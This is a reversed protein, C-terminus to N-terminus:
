SRKAASTGASILTEEIHDKLRARFLDESFKEAQKRCAVPNIEEKRKEFEEVAEMISEPTQEDFFVGTESTISDLAGGKGYAIVPTGCALAEVPMIGFDEQAAFVFARAKQMKEKLVSFPQYGLYEINPAKSAIEEVKPAETGAGIIVLKRDPMKAFAEAIVPLKKYPVMRSAALYFDEKEACAEFDQTAVPPHIVKSERDYFRSIRSAIFNSNAVYSTVWPATKLDWQRLRGLFYRILSGKLGRGQGTTSLYEEQMDWAYRVPSHCYCVHVQGDRPRVGKAVCHSSSIVLDYASLNRMEVAMPFLPLYHRFHSRSLPLYQIFTTKAKRGGIFGRKDDPLFDVLAYLDADPYIKLIQEVVRESGAYSAFWEHVIAVKLNKQNETM